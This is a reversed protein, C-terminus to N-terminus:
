KERWGWVEENAESDMRRVLVFEGEPMDEEQRATITHTQLVHDDEGMVFLFAKEANPCWWKMSDALFTLVGMRTQMGKEHPVEIM